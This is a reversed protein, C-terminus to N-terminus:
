DSIVWLDAFETVIYVYKLDLSLVLNDIQQHQLNPIDFTTTTQQHLVFIQNPTM